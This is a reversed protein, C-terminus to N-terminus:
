YDAIVELVRHGRHTRGFEDRARVELVHVGAGLDQPLRARWLHSSASAQVWTKKDVGRAYLEEIFPDAQAVREMSIADFGDIHLSLSSRPGGAFLNAYVRASYVASTRIPGQLHQMPAADRLANESGQHFTTDLSIRLQAPPLQAPAPTGLPVYDITYGNGDVNLLQYGKPTGDRQYSTPIGHADFPGSWWAGSITAVIHHHHAPGACSGPRELYHHETTHTHGSVILSHAFPCLLELLADRNDTEIREDRGLASLMPIHTAIVILTDREVHALTNALWQLQDDSVHGYYSGEGRPDAPDTGRYVVNDLVVFLAQGEAFAYYPPGFVRKFTELSTADDPALFNLEHNGPVNYWPTGIAGILANYRPLLSLDDFMIDGTTLGFRADVSAARSVFAERIYDLERATQPQPDSIVLARFRTETPGPRLAFDIREPLAGTPEIGRYRLGLDPTGEPAHLYFFRPRQDASTPVRYGAPKHVMVFGPASVPIRYAGTGDTVVVDRGNSVLVEAVGPEGTDRVGNANRDEFVTGRATEPEAAGSHTISVLPLLVAFVTILHGPLPGSRLTICSM